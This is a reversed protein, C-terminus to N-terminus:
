IHILSLYGVSNNSLHHFPQPGSKCAKTHRPNVDCACFLNLLHIKGRMGEFRFTEIRFQNMTPVQGTMADGQVWSPSDGLLACALKDDSMTGYMCDSFMGSQCKCAESFDSRVQSAKWQAARCHDLCGQRLTRQGPRIQRRDSRSSHETM